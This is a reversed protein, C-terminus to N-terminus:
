IFLGGFHMSSTISFTKTTTLIKYIENFIEEPPEKNKELFVCYTIILERLHEITKILSQNCIIVKDFIYYDDFIPEPNKLSENWYYLNDRIDKVGM